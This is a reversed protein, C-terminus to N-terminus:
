MVFVTKVINFLKIPKSTLGCRLPSTHNAFPKSWRFSFCTCSIRQFVVQMFLTYIRFRFVVSQTLLCTKKKRCHPHYFDDITHWRKKFELLILENKHVPNKEPPPNQANRQQDPHLNGILFLKPFCGRIRLSLTRANIVMKGNRVFQNWYGSMRNGGICSATSM